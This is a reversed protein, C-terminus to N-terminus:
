YINLVYNASVQHQLTDTLTLTLINKKGKQFRAEGVLHLNQKNYLQERSYTKTGHVFIKGDKESFFDYSIEDLLTGNVSVSSKYPSAVKQGRRYVKYLGQSLTRTTQLDYQVGSRDEVVIGYLFLPLDEKLKPLLTFPNVARTNKTDLLQFELSSKGNQWASNGTEGIIEKLYVDTVNYHEKSITEKDLNGYVGVLEDSHSVIFANGLTSPFFVSEDDYENIIAIITGNDSTSVPSPTQFVVSMNIVNGRLQGFYSHINEFTIEEQPWELSFLPIFFLLFILLFLKQATKM